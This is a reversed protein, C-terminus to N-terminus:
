ELLINQYEILDFAPRDAVAAMLSRSQSDVEGVSRVKADPGLGPRAKDADFGPMPDRVRFAERAVERLLWAHPDKFATLRKERFHVYHQQFRLARSAAQATRSGSAGDVGGFRWNPAIGEDPAGAM